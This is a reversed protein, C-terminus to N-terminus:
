ELKMRKKNPRKEECIKDKHIPIWWAQVCLMSLNDVICWIRLFFLISNFLSFSLWHGIYGSIDNFYFSSYTKLSSTSYFYLEFFFMFEFLWAIIIVMWHCIITPGYICMIIIFFFFLSCFRIINVSDMSLYYWSLLMCLCYVYMYIAFPTKCKIRFIPFVNTKLTEFSIFNSGFSIKYPCYANQIPFSPYEFENYIRSIRLCAIYIHIFLVFILHYPFYITNYETYEDSTKDNM